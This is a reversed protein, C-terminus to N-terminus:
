KKEAIFEYKHSFDLAIKKSVSDIQKEDHPDFRIQTRKLPSTMFRGRIAVSPIYALLMLMMLISFVSLGMFIAIGTHLLLGIIIIWPRARTWVLFPLGIEAIFTHFVCVASMLAYIIRYKVTFRMFEEYWHSYIMTFEPNAVTLWYATHGWWTSGKLKSLGAAMYIFCFHVQLLRSAFGTAIDAPPKALFEQTAADIEGHKKLSNRAARYKAIMRDVSFAGGSNGIMLYLMLINSMTDMGFLVYQSRNIYNIAAFWALPATIRTWLGIAFFVMILIVIGHVIKMEFPDTVHFWVSYIPHGTRITKSRDVGWNSLYEIEEVRKKKDEPLLLMFKIFESMGANDLESFHNLIYSRENADVPLSSYFNEIKKRIQELQTKTAIKYISPIVSFDVPNRLEENV